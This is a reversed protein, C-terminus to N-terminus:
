HNSDLQPLSDILDGGARHKPRSKRLAGRSRTAAIYCRHVDTGYAISRLGLGVGPLRGGVYQAVRDARSKCVLARRHCRPRVAVVSRRMRPPMPAFAARCTVSLTTGHLVSQPDDRSNDWDQRCISRRRLVSPACWSPIRCCAGVFSPLSRRQDPLKRVRVRQDFSPV